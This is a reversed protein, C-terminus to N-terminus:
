NNTLCNVVYMDIARNRFAGELPFKVGWGVPCDRYVQCLGTSSGQWFWNRSQHVDTERVRHVSVRSAWSLELVVQAVPCFFEILKLLVYKKILQLGCMLCWFSQETRIWWFKSSIPFIGLAVGGLDWTSDVPFELTKLICYFFVGLTQLVQPM